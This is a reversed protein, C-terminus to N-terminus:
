NAVHKGGNPELLCFEVAPYCNVETHERAAQLTFLQECVLCQRADCGVARFVKGRQDDRGDCHTTGETM